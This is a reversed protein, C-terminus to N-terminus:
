DSAQELDVRRVDGFLKEAEASADAHNQYGESQAVKENNLAVARFYWLLDTGRFVEVRDIDAM